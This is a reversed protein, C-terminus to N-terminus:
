RQERARVGIWTLVFLGEGPDTVVSAGDATVHGAAVVQWLGGNLPPTYVSDGLGVFDVATGAPLHAVNVVRVSMRKTSALDFPALAWLAVVGAAVAGPPAQALPVDAARLRSGLNGLEVDEPSFQFSTGPPVTLAVDGAKVTGGLAPDPLSRGEDRYAPLRLAAGFDIVGNLGAPPPVYLSGYSPRGHIQLTYIAADIVLGPHIEFAGDVGTTTYFCAPGCFTIPLGPLPTGLTDHVVGRVATVCAEGTSATGVMGVCAGADDGADPLVDNESADLVRSPSLDTAVDASGVDTTPPRDVSPTSGGCAVMLVAVTM